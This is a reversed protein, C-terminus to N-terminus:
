PRSCSLRAGSAGHGYQPTWSRVSFALCHKSQPISQCSGALIMRRPDAQGVIWRPLTHLVEVAAEQSALDTGLGQALGLRWHLLFVRVREKPTGENTLLLLFLSMCRLSPELLDGGTEECGEASTPNRGPPLPRRPEVQVMSTVHAQGNAPITRATKRLESALLRM